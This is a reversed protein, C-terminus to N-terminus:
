GLTYDYDITKPSIFVTPVAIFRSHILLELLSIYRTMCETAASLCYVTLTIVHHLRIIIQAAASHCIRAQM